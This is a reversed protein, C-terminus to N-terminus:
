DFLDDGSIQEITSSKNEFGSISVFGIRGIKIGEIREIQEIEKKIAADSLKEELYKVEYFDYSDKRKLVCDFEGNTKREKDDYWYTGIDLIEGLEGSKAKRMFYSRAISEARYSIFTNISPEIYNSYFTEAGLRKIADSNSFVNAPM